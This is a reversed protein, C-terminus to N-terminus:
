SIYRLLASAKYNSHKLGYETILMHKDADGTKALLERTMPRLEMIKWNSPDYLLAVSTLM